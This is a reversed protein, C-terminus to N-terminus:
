RRTRAGRAVNRRARARGARGRHRPSDGPDGADESRGGEVDAVHKDLMALMEQEPYEGLVGMKKSHPNGYYAVIRNKPLMAGALAAPEGALESGQPRCPNGRLLEDPGGAQTRAGAEARDLRRDGVRVVRGM